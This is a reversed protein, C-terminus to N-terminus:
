GEKEYDGWGENALNALMVDDPINVVSEGGSSGASDRDHEIQARAQV